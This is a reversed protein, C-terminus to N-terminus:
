EEVTEDPEPSCGSTARAPAGLRQQPKLSPLKHMWEPSPAARSREPAPAARSREFHLHEPSGRSAPTEAVLRPHVSPAEPFPRMREPQSWAITRRLLRGSHCARLVAVITQSCEVPAAQGLEPEAPLVRLVAASPGIAGVSWEGLSAVKGSWRVRM